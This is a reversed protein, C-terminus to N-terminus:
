KTLTVVPSDLIYATREVYWDSEFSDLKDLAKELTTQSSVRIFLQKSGNDFEDTQYDLVFEANDGFYEQLKYFTEVLLFQLGASERIYSDVKEFDAFAYLSRVIRELDGFLHEYSWITQSKYINKLTKHLIDTFTGLEQLDSDCVNSLWSNLLTQKTLNQKTTFTREFFQTKECRLFDKEALIFHSSHLPEIFSNNLDIKPKYTYETTIIEEDLIDCMSEDTSNENGEVSSSWIGTRWVAFKSESTKTIEQYM